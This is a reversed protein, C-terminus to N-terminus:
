HEERPDNNPRHATAMIVSLLVFGILWFGFLLVQTRWPLATRYVFAEFLKVAFIAAAVDIVITKLIRM